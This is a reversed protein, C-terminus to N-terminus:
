QPTTDHLVDKHFGDEVLIQMRDTLNRDSLAGDDETDDNLLHYEFIDERVSRIQLAIMINSKSFRSIFTPTRSSSPRGDVLEVAM